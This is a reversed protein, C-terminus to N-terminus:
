DKYMEIPPIEFMSYEHMRINRSIGQINHYKLPYKM